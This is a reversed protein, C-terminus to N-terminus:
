DKWIVKQSKCLYLRESESDWEYIKERSEIVTRGVSGDNLPDYEVAGGLTDACQKSFQADVHNQRETASM